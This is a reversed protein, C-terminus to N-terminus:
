IVILWMCAYVILFFKIEWPRYTKKKLKIQSWLVCDYVNSSVSHSVPQCILKVTEVVHLCAMCSKTYIHMRVIYTGEVYM